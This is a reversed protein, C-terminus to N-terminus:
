TTTRSPPFLTAVYEDVSWVRVRWELGGVVRERGVSDERKERGEEPVCSDMIPIVGVKEIIWMMYVGEEGEEGEM